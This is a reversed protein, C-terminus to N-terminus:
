SHAHIRAVTHTLAHTHSRGHTLTGAHMLMCAHAHMHLTRTHIHSHNYASTHTRAHTCTLTHLRVHVHSLSHTHTRSHTHAHFLASSNIAILSCSVLFLFCRITYISHQVYSRCVEMERAPVGRGGLCQLTRTECCGSHARGQMTHGPNWSFNTTSHLGRIDQLRRGNTDVYEM